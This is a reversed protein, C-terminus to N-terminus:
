QEGRLLRERREDGERRTRSVWAQADEGLLPYPAIGEIERWDRRRPPASYAQRATTALHAILRLQEDPSLREARQMIEMLEDSAVIVEKQWV